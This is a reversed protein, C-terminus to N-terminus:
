APAGEAYWFRSGDAKWHPEISGGRVNSAFEMYRYYMAEPESQPTEQAALVVTLMVGVVVTLVTQETLKLM